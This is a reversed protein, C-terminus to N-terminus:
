KIGTELQCTSKGVQLVEEDLNMLIWAEHDGYILNQSTFDVISCKIIIFM